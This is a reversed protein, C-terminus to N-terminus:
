APAQPDGAGCAAARDDGRLDRVPPRSWRGTVAVVVAVVVWVGALSWWVLQPSGATFVPLVFRAATDVTAHSIIVLPLGAASGNYLRSLFVSQAVVMIVFQAVPRQGTPDSVLEPLHWAAWIVGLLVAASLGNVRQQLRPLAYGRWGVEEFLGILLVTSGFAAAVQTWDPLTAGAAPSGGAALTIVAALATGGVPVLVAALYWGPAARWRGLQGFLARLGGTLAAVVAAAILPGFPLLPSSEPNLAVLPWALWSLLFALVFYLALDHRRVWGRGSRV